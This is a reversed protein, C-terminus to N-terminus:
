AYVVSRFPTEHRFGHNKLTSLNSCWEERGLIKGLTDGPLPVCWPKRKAFFPPFLGVTQAPPLPAFSALFFAAASSSRLSLGDDRLGAREPQSTASAHSPCTLPVLFSKKPMPTRGSGTSPAACTPRSQPMAAISNRDLWGSTASRRWASRSSRASACASSMTPASGLRVRRLSIALKAAVCHATVVFPVAPHAGLLGHSSGIASIAGM